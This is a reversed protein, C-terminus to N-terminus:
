FKTKIPRNIKLINPLFGIRVDVLPLLETAFKGLNSSMWAKM